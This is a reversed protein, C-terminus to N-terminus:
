CVEGFRKDRTIALQNNFSVLSVLTGGPYVIECPLPWGCEPPKPDLPSIMMPM